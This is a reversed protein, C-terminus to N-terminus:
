VMPSILGMRINPHSILNTRFMPVRRDQNMNQFLSGDYYICKQKANLQTTMENNQSSSNM